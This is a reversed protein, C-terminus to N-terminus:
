TAQGIGLVKKCHPCAYVVLHGRSMHALGTVGHIEGECYPCIVKQEEENQYKMMEQQIDGIINKFKGM